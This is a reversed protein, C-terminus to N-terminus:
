WWPGTCYLRIIELFTAHTSTASTWRPESLIKVRVVIRLPSVMWFLGVKGFKRFKRCKSCPSHTLLRAACILKPVCLPITIPFFTNVATLLLTAGAERSRPCYLRIIELFTAHMSTASTWASVCSKPEFPSACCHYGGHVVTIDM